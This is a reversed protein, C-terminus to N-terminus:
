GNTKSGTDFESSKTSENLLGCVNALKMTGGVQPVPSVLKQAGHFTCTTFIFDNGNWQITCGTFECNIFNRGDIIITADKYSKNLVPILTTGDQQADDPFSLSTKTAVSGPMDLQSIREWLKTLKSKYRM